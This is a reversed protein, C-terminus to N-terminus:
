IEKYMKALKEVKVSETDIQLIYSEVLNDVNGYNTVEINEVEQQVDEFWSATYGINRMDYKEKLKERYSDQDKFEKDLVVNLYIKHLDKLYSDENGELQSINIKRYCPAEKWSEFTYKGTETDLVCFGKNMEDDCDSMTTSHTNGIYCVTARDERLHFHGTFIKKLNSCKYEQENFTGRHVVQKNFHFTPVELHSFVYEPNYQQLLLPLKEEGCLWPVYLNKGIMTPENIITINKFEEAVLLSTVNRNEKYFLDHNGTIFRVPVGLDNLLKLGENSYKLTSVNIEDRHEFWDGLFDIEDIKNKTAYVTLFRIFELCDENKVSSDGSVGWHIDGFLIKKM